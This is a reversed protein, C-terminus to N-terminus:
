DLPPRRLRDGAACREALGDVLRPRLAEGDDVLLQLEAQARDRHRDDIAGAAGDGGDVDRRLRRTEGDLRHLAVDQRRQPLGLLADLFEEENLAWGIDSLWGIQRASARQRKM